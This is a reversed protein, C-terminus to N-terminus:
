PEPNPFIRRLRRYARAAADQRGRLWEPEPEPVGDATPPRVEPPQPASPAPSTPGAEVTPAAASTRFEQELGPWEIDSRPEGEGVSEPDNFKSWARAVTPDPEIAAPSATASIPGAPSEAPQEAAAAPAAAAPQEEGVPRGLAAMAEDLEEAGPLDFESPITPAREPPPSTAAPPQTTSAEPDPARVGSLYARIAQVEAEDWGEEAAVAGLREEVDDVPARILPEEAAVPEPQPAPPAQQWGGAGMELEAAWEDSEDTAPGALWMLEEEEGLAGSGSGSAEFGQAAPTWPDAM